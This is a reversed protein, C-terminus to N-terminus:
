TCRGSRGIRNRRLRGGHGERGRPWGQQLTDGSRGGAGGDDGLDDGEQAAAGDAGAVEQGRLGLQHAQGADAQEVTLSAM